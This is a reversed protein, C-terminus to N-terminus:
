DARGGEIDMTRCASTAGTSSPYNGLWTYIRLAIPAITPGLVNGDEEDDSVDAFMEMRIEQSEYLPNERQLNSDEGSCYTHINIPKVLIPVYKCLSWEM